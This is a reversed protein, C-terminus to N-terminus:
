QSRFLRKRRSLHPCSLLSRKRAHCRDSRAAAPARGLQHPSRRLRWDSISIAGALTPGYGSAHSNATAHSNTFPRPCCNASPCSYRYYHGLNCRSCGNNGYLDPPPYTSPYRNRSASQTWLRCAIHHWAALPGNSVPPPPFIIWRLSAPWLRAM